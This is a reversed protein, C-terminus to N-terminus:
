THFRKLNPPSIGSIYISLLVIRYFNFCYQKSVYCVSLQDNETNKRIKQREIDTIWKNLKCVINNKSKDFRVKILRCILCIEVLNSSIEYM